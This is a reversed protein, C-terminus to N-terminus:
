EASSKETHDTDKATGESATNRPRPTRPTRERREAPQHRLPDASATDFRARRRFIDVARYIAERMSAPDAAGTWAIDQATGHDPSTRVFPLGGTFNVGSSGAITKFAVLGQDHYMALTGDFKRWEGSGFFGDAAFPGFALLGNEAAKELAPIIERIEENGLVGGDGSHPNLSLVAIKPREFGFDRRLTNEFRALASSIAESTVAAPIEGVPLHTTVLAVRLDDNFLIMQAKTGEPSISELFETHGPFRFSDSHIAEKNIPATVLVDADGDAIAKCASRLSLLAAAGSLPSPHGPEIKIEELPLDVLNLRGPLADAASDIRHLHAIDIGLRSMCERIIASSAFLLPTFMTTLEPDALAKLAVEPGIGNYDGM